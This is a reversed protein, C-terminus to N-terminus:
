HWTLSWAGLLRADLDNLSPEAGWMVALGGPTIAAAHADAVGAVEMLVLDADNGHIVTRWTLGCGAFGTVTAETLLVPIPIGTDGIGGGARYLREIEGNSAHIGTAALLANALAVPGCLDRTENPGTIWGAGLVGMAAKAPTSTTKKTGGSSVSKAKGITTTRTVTTSGGSTKTSVSKTVGTNNNVTKTTTTKSPASAM